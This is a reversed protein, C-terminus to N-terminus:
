TSPMAFRRTTSIEMGSSQLILENLRKIQSEELTKALLDMMGDFNAKEIAYFDIRKGRETEHIFGERWKKLSEDIAPEQTTNIKLEARVSPNTLLRPFVGYPYLPRGQKPINDAHVPKILALAIMLVCASSAKM